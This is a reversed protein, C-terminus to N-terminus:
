GETELLLPISARLRKRWESLHARFAATEEPYRLEAEEQVWHFHGHFLPHSASRIEEESVIPTDIWRNVVRVMQQLTQWDLESLRPDAILQALLVRGDPEGGILEIFGAKPHLFTSRVPAEAYFWDTIFEIEAVGRLQWMALCINRRHASEREGQFREMAARLLPSAREPQLKTAAIAWSTTILPAVIGHEEHDRHWLEYTLLTDSEEPGFIKDAHALIFLAMRSYPEANRGRAQLDPDDSPIRNQLMLLLRETGLQRCMEILEEETALANSGSRGILYLLVWARDDSPLQDIRERVGRIGEVASEQTPYIGHSARALQVGFWGACHTRHQRVEWYAAFGPESRHAVGYHFGSENMYMAVMARAIDGVTQNLPPPGFGAGSLWQRSIEPHSVFTAAEDGCLPVLAPLVSPDERDFLAVAALTRVKPDDHRLLERLAAEPHSRDRVKGLIRFHEEQVSPDAVRFYHDKRDYLIAGQDLYPLEAAYEEFQTRTEEGGLVSVGGLLAGFALQLWVGSFAQNM